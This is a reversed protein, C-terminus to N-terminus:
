DGLCSLDQASDLALTLGEKSECVMVATRSLLKSRSKVFQIRVLFVRFPNGPRPNSPFFPFISKCSLLALKRERGWPHTQLSVAVPVM